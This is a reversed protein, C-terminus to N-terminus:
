CGCSDFTCSPVLQSVEVYHLSNNKSIQHRVTARAVSMREYIERMTFETRYTINTAGVNVLENARCMCMSCPHECRNSTYTCTVQEYMCTVNTVCKLM